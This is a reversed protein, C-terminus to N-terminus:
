LDGENERDADDVVIVAKGAAIDAIAREVPDFATM